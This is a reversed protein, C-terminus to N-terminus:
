DLNWLKRLRIIESGKVHWKKKSGKPIGKIDGNRCKKKVTEVTLELLPAAEHAPYAHEPDIKPGNKAM